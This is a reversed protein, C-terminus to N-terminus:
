LCHGQSQAKCVHSIDCGRDKSFKAKLTVGHRSELAYMLWLYSNKSLPLPPFWLSILIQCEAPQPLLIM